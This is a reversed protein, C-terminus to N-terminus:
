LYIIRVARCASYRMIKVCIKVLARANGSHRMLCRRVMWRPCIRIEQILCRFDAMRGFMMLTWLIGISNNMNSTTSSSGGGSLLKTINDLLRASASTDRKIAAEGISASYMANVEDATKDIAELNNDQFQQLMIMAEDLSEEVDRFKLFKDSCFCRRYTDNANACMQDMCTAYSERCAAYGSGIKSLDNFVATARATTAARSMGAVPSTVSRAAARPNTPVNTGSRAVSTRNSDPATRTEGAVTGRRSQTAMRSSAGARTRSEGIARRTLAGVTATRSLVRTDSKTDTNTSLARPNQANDAVAATIVAIACGAFIGM